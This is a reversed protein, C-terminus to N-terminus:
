NNIVLNNDIDKIQNNFYILVFQKLVLVLTQENLLM